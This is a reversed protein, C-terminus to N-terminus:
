ATQSNSEGHSFQSSHMCRRPYSNEDMATRSHCAEVPNTSQSAREPAESGLTSLLIPLAVALRMTSLTKM